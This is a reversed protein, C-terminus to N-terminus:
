RCKQMRRRAQLKAERQRLQEGKAAGYGARMRSRIDQLSRSLRACEDAQRARQIGPDPERKIRERPSRSQSRPTTQVEAFDAPAYTSIRSSDPVYQRAGPDCPTDSFTLLGDVRCRYISRSPAAGPPPEDEAASLLPPLAALLLFLLFPRM